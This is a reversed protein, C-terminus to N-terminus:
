TEMNEHSKLILAHAHNNDASVQDFSCACPSLSYLLLLLEMNTATKAYVGLKIEAVSVQSAGRSLKQWLVEELFAFRLSRSGAFFIQSESVSPFVHFGLSRSEDCFSGLNRSRIM